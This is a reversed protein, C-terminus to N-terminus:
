SQHLRMIHDILNNTNTALEEMDGNNDITFDAMWPQLNMSTAPETPLIGTRDVWIAYHFAGINKLANFERKNRLGCYVDNLKFIARGLKTPDKENFENIAEFWERRHNGRDEYCEDFSTYGYKDKLRDYIFLEALFKSSSQFSFGHNQYLIEAVTDKGHRGHGIILLKPKNYLPLRMYDYYRIQNM